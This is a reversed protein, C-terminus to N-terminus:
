KAERLDLAEQPLPLKQRFMTMVSKMMRTGRPVVSFVFLLCYVLSVWLVKFASFLCMRETYMFGNAVVDSM